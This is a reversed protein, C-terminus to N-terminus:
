EGLIFFLAGFFVAATVVLAALALGVTRWWSEIGAGSALHSKLEAGQAREAIVRFAITYAVPLAVNPLGGPLALAIPFIALMALFGYVIALRAHHSQSLRKYNQALLISGGLPGGLFTALVAQNM